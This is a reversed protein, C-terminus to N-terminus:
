QLTRRRAPEGAAPGAETLGTCGIPGGAIGSVNCEAEGHRAIVPETIIM